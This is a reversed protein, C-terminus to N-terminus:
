AALKWGTRTQKISFRNTKLQSESLFIDVLNYDPCKLQEKAAFRVLRDFHDTVANSEHEKEIRSLTEPSYGIIKCFQVGSFGLHKRLFRVEKGDLMGRKQILAKAIEQHLQDPNNIEHYEEGCLQCHYVPIDMLTINNLGCEKYSITKTEAKLSKPNECMACKM